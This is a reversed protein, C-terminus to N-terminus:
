SEWASRGRRPLQKGEKQRGRHVIRRHFIGSEIRYLTFDMSIKHLSRYVPTILLRNGKLESGISAIVGSVQLAIERTPALILVQVGKVQLDIMELAIIAFVATKGTGSKARM